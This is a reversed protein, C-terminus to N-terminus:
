QSEKKVQNAKSSRYEYRLCRRNMWWVACLDVLGRWLRNQIGYKSTGHARPFHQVDCETVTFGYMKALAPFFRHMGDFLQLRDILRRSFIKLSCGTDQVHDHTVVNRVANALRSSFGRIADDHRTARRGCVLDFSESLPLLRLIDASDYQLDGDLTVIRDGRAQKFGADFAATQGCRQAFHFVRVVDHTADLEDLIIDSGDTSGDNVFIIEHPKQADSLVRIIQETLPSLNDRENHIPIVISLLSSHRRSLSLLGSKSPHKGEGDVQM